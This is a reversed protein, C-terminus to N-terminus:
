TVEVFARAIQEEELSVVAGVRRVSFPWGPEGELDAGIGEVGWHGDLWRACWRRDSAGRSQLHSALSRGMKSDDLALRIVEGSTPRGSAGIFAGALDPQGDQDLPIIVPLRVLVRGRSGRGRQQKLWDLLQDAPEIPPGETFRPRPARTMRM